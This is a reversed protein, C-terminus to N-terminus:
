VEHICSRRTWVKNSKKRNCDGCAAALNFSTNLARALISTDSKLQGKWNYKKKSVRSPAIIHDVQVNHKGLLPKGCQSCFWIFGLLGPSKRFYAARYDDDRWHKVKPASL